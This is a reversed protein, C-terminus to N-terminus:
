SKNGIRFCRLSLGRTVEEYTYQIEEKVDCMSLCYLMPLYHDMTPVAYDAIKGLKNFQFLSSFDREDIRQKAWEDFELAWDYPKKTWIRLASMELNHVINGSGIILVGRSRLQKIQQAISYHQDLPKEMDISMELVPINGAPAIHRLVSWAGHDLDRDADGKANITDMILRGAAPSGKSPYEPTQFQENINVFTDGLTLWHASIILIAAPKVTAGMNRLSTTFPTIKPKKAMDIHGVFFVPMLPTFPLDTNATLLQSLGINGKLFPFLAVTKLFGKRNM